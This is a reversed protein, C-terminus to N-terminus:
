GGSIAPLFHIETEPELRELWPGPVIDGDIAIAASVLQEGIGPFLDELRSVLERVTSAQVECEELGGTLRQLATPFYVQAM